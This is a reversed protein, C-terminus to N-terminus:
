DTSAASAKVIAEARLADAQLMRQFTEPEATMVEAGLAALRAQVTPEALAGLLAQNIRLIETKSTGAPALLGLWSVYQFGPFGAEAVTPLEPLFLSRKSGTYALLKIRPDHRYGILAPVAAMVGQSRETLLETVAAGTSRMPIHTMQLGARSLFYAMGLQSASGIGASSFFYTAPKERVAKVYEALNAVQLSAPAAIVYGSYGLQAVGVFDKVPDYSLKPYFYSAYHHSAGAILLTLGDPASRAVFAAGITGGAGARNEVLATQGLRRGLEDSFVRAMVDQVSGAAYPVVIRLIPQSDARACPNFWLLFIIVLHRTLLM